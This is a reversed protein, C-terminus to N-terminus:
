SSNSVSYAVSANDVEKKLNVVKIRVEELSGTFADRLDFTGWPLADRCAGCICTLECSHDRTEYEEEEHEAEFCATGGGDPPLISSMYIYNLETLYRMESCENEFGVEVINALCYPCQLVPLLGVIEAIVEDSPM